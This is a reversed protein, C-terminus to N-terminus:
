VIVTQPIPLIPEDIRPEGALGPLVPGVSVGLAAVGILIIRFMKVGTKKMETTAAQFPLCARFSRVASNLPFPM